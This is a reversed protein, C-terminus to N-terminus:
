QKIFAQSAISLKNKDFVRIYYLGAPLVGVNVSHMSAGDSIEQRFVLAGTPAYVCLEQAELEESFRILLQDTAPNPQIYLRQAGMSSDEELTNEELDCNEQYDPYRGDKIELIGRALFTAQGGELV